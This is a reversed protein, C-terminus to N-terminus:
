KDQYKQFKSIVDETDIPNKNNYIQMSSDLEKRIQKYIEQNISQISQKQPQLPIGMYEKVANIYNGSHEVLKASATDYDYTTQKMIFSVHDNNEKSM